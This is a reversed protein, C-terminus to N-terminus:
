ITCGMKERISEIISCDRQQLSLFLDAIKVVDVKNRLRMYELLSYQKDLERLYEFMFECDTYLSCYEHLRRRLVRLVGIADRAAIVNDITCLAYPKVKQSLATRFDLLLSEKIEETIEKLIRIILMKGNYAELIESNTLKGTDRPTDNLFSWFEGTYETLLIYHDDRWMLSNYRNKIYSPKTKVCCYGDLELAAFLEPIEVGKLEVLGFRQAVDQLRPVGNYYAYSMGEDFFAKCIENFGEYSHSYLHKYSYNEIDLIYLFYSEVCSLSSINNFRTKDIEVHKM